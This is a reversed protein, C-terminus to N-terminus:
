TQRLLEMLAKAEADKEQGRYGFINDMERVKGERELEKLRRLIAERQQFKAERETDVGVVRAGTGINLARTFPDKSEDVAKSATNSIRSLPSNRLAYSLWPDMEQRVTGNKETIADVGPLGEAWHPAKRLDEIDRGLFLDQGTAVEIPMRLLPNLNTLLKAMGRGPGDAFGTFPELGAEFPTDLGALFQKKGEADEGLPLALGERLWPPTPEDGTQQTLHAMGQIKRTDTVATELLRPIVNRTFGYFFIVRSAVDKEFKTMNRRSYDFLAKDVLKAAEKPHVGQQRHYIYNAWRDAQEMSQGSANKLADTTGSAIAGPTSVLGASLKEAGQILKNNPDLPNWTEKKKPLLKQGAVEEALDEFFGGRRMGAALGEEIIQERTLTKGDGTVVQMAKGAVLQEGLKYHEGFYPVGGFMSGQIRNGLYRNRAHYAPFPRTIYSKMLATASDYWQLLKPVEEANSLKTFVKQAAQAEELTKFAVGPPSNVALERVLFGEPVREIGPNGAVPKAKALSEASVTKGIKPNRLEEIFDAQARVQFHRMQRRVLVQYPNANFLDQGITAKSIRNIEDIGLEKISRELLSPHATRELYERSIGVEDLFSKTNPDLKSLRDMPGSPPSTEIGMARLRDGLQRFFESDRRDGLAKFASENAIHAAYNLRDSGLSAAGAVKEEFAIMEDHLKHWEQVPKLLKEPLPGMRPAHEVTRLFDAGEDPTMKRLTQMMEATARAASASLDAPVADPVGAKAAQEKAYALAAQEQADLEALAKKGEDSIALADAKGKAAARIEAGKRRGLEELPPPLLKELPDNPKGIPNGKDFPVFENPVEIEVGDKLRIKEPGIEKVHFVDGALRIQDGPVLGAADASMFDVSKLNPLQAGPRNLMKELAKPLAEAQAMPGKEVIGLESLFKDRAAKAEINYHKMNQAEPLSATARIIERTDYARENVPKKFDPPILSQETKEIGSAIARSTRSTASSPVFHVTGDAEKVQLLGNGVEGIVEARIKNRRRGATEIGKPDFQIISGVKPRNIVKEFDAKEYAGATREAEDMVRKQAATLEAEFPAAVEARKAAFREKVFDPNAYKTFPEPEGKLGAAAMREAEGALMPLPPPKVPGPVAPAAQAPGPIFGPSPVAAPADLAAGAPRGVGLGGEIGGAQGSPALPGLAELSEGAVYPSEKALELNKDAKKLLDGVSKHLNPDYEATAFRIGVGPARGAKTHPLTDLGNVRAYEAARQEARRLANDLDQKSVGNAIVGFEDGGKTTILVEGSLNNLEEQVLDAIAKLHVDAGKQGFAHNLGGLNALDGEGYVVSLGERLARDMAIETLRETAYKGEIMGTVPHPNAISVRRDGAQRQMLREQQEAEFRGLVTEPPKPAGPLTPTRQGELLRTAEDLDGAELAEDVSQLANVKVDQGAEASKRLGEMAQEEPTGTFLNSLAKVPRSAGIWRGVDQLGQAAGAGEILTKQPLNVTTLDALWPLPVIPTPGGISFFAKQGQRVQDGADKALRPASGSDVLERAAQGLPSDQAAIRRVIEDEPLLNDADDLLNGFQHETLAKRAADLGTDGVRAGQIMDYVQVPKITKAKALKAGLDAVDDLFPTIKSAARGGKTLANLGFGGPLLNIPDPIIEAALGALGKASLLDADPGQDVLGWSELMDQGSVREGPRGALVGRTYAGPTDLVHGVTGLGSLGAELLGDMFGPEEEPPPPLPPEIPPPPQEWPAYTKAVKAGFLPVDWPMQAM